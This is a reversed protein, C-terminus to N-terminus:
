QEFPWRTKSQSIQRTPLMPDMQVNKWFRREWTDEAPSRRALSQWFSKNPWLLCLCGKEKISLCERDRPCHPGASRRHKRYGTQTPSLIKREELYSILRSNIVQDLLKGLCSLLSMPRYRNPDKKDKGKKHIPIITSKEMFCSSHWEEVIRQIAWSTNEWCCTWPTQDHWKHCWRTRTGEQVEVTANSSWDKEHHHAPEHLQRIHAAEAAINAARQSSLNKGETAQCQERRPVTKGPLQSSGKSCYARWRVASGDPNKRFKEM